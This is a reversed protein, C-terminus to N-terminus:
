ALLHKRARDLRGEVISNLSLNRENQARPTEVCREVFADAGGAFSFTEKCTEKLSFTRRAFNSFGFIRTWSPLM